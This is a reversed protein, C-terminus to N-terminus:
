SSYSRFREDREGATDACTFRSKFVGGKNKDVGKHHFVQFGDPIEERLVLTFTDRKWLKEVQAKQAEHLRSATSTTVVVNSIRQM